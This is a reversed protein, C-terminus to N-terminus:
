KKKPRPKKREESPEVSEVDANEDDSGNRILLSPDVSAGQKGM